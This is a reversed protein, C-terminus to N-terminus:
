YLINNILKILNLNNCFIILSKGNVIEWKNLCLGKLMKFIVKM